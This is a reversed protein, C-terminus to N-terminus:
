AAAEEDDGASYGEDEPENGEADEGESEDDENEPKGEDYSMPIQSPDSANEKKTKLSEEAQNYKEEFDTIANALAAAEKSLEPQDQGCYMSFTGLFLRFQDLANTEPAQMKVHKKGGIKMSKM